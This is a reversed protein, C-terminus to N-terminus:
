RPLNGFPSAGYPQPRVARPMAAAFLVTDAQDVILVVAPLPPTLDARSAQPPWQDRVTQIEDLFVFRAGQPVVGLAVQRDQQRYVLNGALGQSNAEIVLEYAGDGGALLPAATRGELASEAGSFSHSSGLPDVVTAALVERLWAAQLFERTTRAAVDDVRALSRVGVSFAQLLLTFLLVGISLVVLAELLTFGSLRRSLRRCREAPSSM